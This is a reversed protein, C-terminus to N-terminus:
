VLCKLCLDHIMFWGLYKYLILYWKALWPWQLLMSRRTVEMIFKKRTRSINLWAPSMDSDCYMNGKEVPIDVCGGPALVGAVLAAVIVGTSSQGHINAASEGHRWNTSFSWNLMLRASRAMADSSLKPMCSYRTNPRGIAWPQGNFRSMVEHLRISVPWMRVQSRSSLAKSLNFSARRSYSALSYSRRDDFQGVALLSRIMNVFLYNAIERSYICGSWEDVSHLDADRM